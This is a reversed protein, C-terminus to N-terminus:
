KRVRKKREIKEAKIYDVIRRGLIEVLPVSVSNGLQTYRRHSIVREPFAFERENFGQLRACETETLKRLRGNDLVFPVNHGGRGMNATLTPCMGDAIPRVFYKRLHYLSNKNGNSVCRMIKKYYRNHQDLYYREEIVKGIDLFSRVPRRKGPCDPFKFRNSKFNRTSLAVMFLRERNQPLETLDATNLVSANHDGFWYGAMQIENRVIDFWRGGDGYKLLPVNELLLVPPRKEGFEKLLRIIEFFLKGRSDDFGSKAGATSFSQCPFGATLIDVPELNDAEVALKRVDKEILRVSRYNHKFTECAAPDIENAWVTKIGAKKLGLSFGGIGSFLSGAKVM